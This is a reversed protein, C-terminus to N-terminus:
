VVMLDATVMVRDWERWVGYSVLSEKWVAGTRRVAMEMGEIENVTRLKKCDKKHQAKWDIAQCSSSCYAVRRCGACKKLDTHPMWCRFCLHGRIALLPTFLIQTHKEALLAERRMINSSSM